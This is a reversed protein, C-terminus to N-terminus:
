QYKLFWRRRYQHTHHAFDYRKEVGHIKWNKTPFFIYVLGISPRTMDPWHNMFTLTPGVMLFVYISCLDGFHFNHIFFSPKTDHNTVVRLNSLLVCHHDVM